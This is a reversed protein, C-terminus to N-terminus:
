DRALELDQSQVWGRTSGIQVPTWNGHSLQPLREVLTNEPLMALVQANVDPSLRLELQARKIRYRPLATTSAPNATFSPLQVKSAVPLLPKPQAEPSASKDPHAQDTGPQLPETLYPNPGFAKELREHTKEIREKVGPSNPSVITPTVFVVLETEKNAFKKSRFLAGLVPIDGLGPLKDVDESQERSIFGSLVITEGAKVNFTTNTERTRLAPGSATSVSSDISSVRTTIDARVTGTKDTVPTIDLRVGYDKFQIFPIGNTSVGQYPIEGGALFSAKRGNRTSLVPEALVVADGKQAMLNLQANLTLNMGFVANLSQPLITTNGEAAHIQANPTDIVYGGGRQWPYWIGGAQVAGLPNSWKVGLERLASKPFEVVKVDMMIMKEWGTPDTFNVVQPYSKAIMDIKARDVDSLNDGEVIVKEGVVSAKTNPIQSLFAAVERQIRTTDGAVINIKIRQYRGDKNWVFLSSTGPKNAFVIVEKDDLAAASMIDGNGVAIRGINPAPFVRSEGVFMDVELTSYKDEPQKIPAYPKAGGTKRKVTPKLQEAYANVTPSTVVNVAAGAPTSAASASTDTAAPVAPTEALASSSAFLTAFFAVNLAFNSSIRHSLFM